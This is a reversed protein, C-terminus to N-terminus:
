LRILVTLDRGPLSDATQGVSVIDLGLLAGASLPPLTMGDVVTSSTVGPAITLPCYTQGNVTLAVQIGTVTAAEGVIAIVDRISCNKEVRIPPVARQQIALYGEVQLSYQGGSFTRLGSDATNTFCTTQSESNGLFNTVYLQAATIRVHPLQDSYNYNGSALSGFFGRVFPLIYVRNDQQYVTSGAAYASASSGLIARTVVCSSGATDVSEVQMLENQVQLLSGPQLTTVSTVSISTATQDVASNLTSRNGAAEDFYYLTLTGATISMTNQLTSFGVGGVEFTGQGVASIGFLPKPPVGTDFGQTSTGIQHRSVNALEYASEIDHVNASRGCIQITAGARNPIDFVAPSTQAVSGFQWAAESVVFTSTTDPVITWDPSVNLVFETNSIITREQGKGKGSTIRVAKGRFSNVVMQIIEGGITNMSHVTAQTEPQLEVRWYFNAHDFNPDPPGASLLGLGSDTFSEAIAEGEAIRIMESPSPGRYVHFAAARADFSLGHLTITNTDAGSPVAAKVVLSLNGEEGSADVASVAYYLITGGPITGGVNSIDPILRLIPIRPGSISPRGPKIFPISLSVIPAETSTVTESASFALDGAEDKHDPLLPRPVQIEFGPRRGSANYTGDSQLYWLDDHLQATIVTRRYNMGPAVKIIRFPQRLLGEKPYTLTILDGPRLGVGRLGTEFEAYLNGRVARNLHLRIVRGAQDFNPLGFAALGLSVEQGARRVDEFDVVSLSDQQYENFEDQFEVTYRNPSDATSRTWLRLSPEGSDKRAIDSFGSTGDGFEYAPWGGNLMEMSNTGPRQQPQQVSLTNEIHAELLGDPGYVLYLNSGSRIGRILDAASRRKTLVLNCQFRPVTTVNGNLDAVNVNEACYRAAQAFSPINLENIQWGCRRLVDLLVWAPNNTFGGGLDTGDVDYTPLEMGELLVEVRPLASGDAIRNPLVVSLVAMSGYPDGVPSGNDTFDLNFEGQRRGLSVINYWGTGTMNRGTQGQPIEIGNAVVKLVSHIVGMGLLVELHTLNGDNRAFIVPPRYWATGYVIPVFDNYRAENEVPVSLHQSKDGFSKVLISSPVFEFGGFRRTIRGTSDVSFMGRKECDDRSFNCDTFAVSGNLSGIGGADPSYGCRYLESYRGNMGGDVAEARESASAPFRWPCRGQIRVPPLLTRQMALRSLFSLRFTTEGMEEPPNSIGKFITTTDSEAEGTFPDVFVFRVTVRAGKFGFQREIQSFYSDVNALTISVKSLSDIGEDASARLDFLNHRLVRGSYVQGAVDVTHTSWFETQGSVLECQFLLIPMGTVELNKQEQITPM